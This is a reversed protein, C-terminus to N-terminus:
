LISFPFSLQNPRTSSNKTSLTNGTETVKRNSLSHSASVPPYSVSDSSLSLKHEQLSWGDKSKLVSNSAVLEKLILSLTATRIHCRDRLERFRLPSNSDRLSQLVRNTYNQKPNTDDQNDTLDSSVLAMSHDNVDLRLSIGNQGPHSRHEIDLLLLDKKRRLFLNSDGWAHFESSGRLAQGGRIHAAGKRAHHVIVVACHFRQQIRRLSSLIPAVASSLNEDIGTHLRVFPDLILLSPNLKEVTDLLELRKTKIDLHIATATIVWLDLDQLLLNQSACIKELRDRVIHAADEAAYLLVRGTQKVQFSQLCPKGSSVAVAMSLALFSKCSKPEGGIIGVAEKSWLNEILWRKEDPVAQLQHARVVPLSTM